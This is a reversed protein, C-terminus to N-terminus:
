IRTTGYEYGEVRGGMCGMCGRYSMCGMYSMYDM